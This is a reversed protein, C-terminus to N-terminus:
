FKDETSKEHNKENIDLNKDIEQYITQEIFMNELEIRKETEFIM